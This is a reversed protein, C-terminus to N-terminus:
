EKSLMMKKKPEKNGGNDGSENGDRNVEKAYCILALLM